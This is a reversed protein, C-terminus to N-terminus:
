RQYCGASQEYTWRIQSREVQESEANKLTSIKRGMARFCALLPPRTKGTTERGQIIM